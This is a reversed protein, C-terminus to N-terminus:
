VTFGVTNLSSKLSVKIWARLSLEEAYQSPKKQQLTCIILSGVNGTEINCAKSLISDSSYTLNFKLYRRHQFSASLLLQLSTDPLSLQSFRSPKSCYVLHNPNSSITKSFSYYMISCTSYYRSNPLIPLIITSKVKNM